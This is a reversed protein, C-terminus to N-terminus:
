SRQVDYGYHLFYDSATCESDFRSRLIKRDGILDGVIRGFWYLWLMNFVFHFLGYHMFMHTFLVWPRTLTKLFSSSLELYPAVYNEYSTSPFSHDIAISLALKLLLIGVFFAFNVLIIRIVMNGSRFQNKVDEWISEFM